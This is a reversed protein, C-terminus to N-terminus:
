SRRVMVTHHLEYDPLEGRALTVYSSKLFVDYRGQSKLMLRSVTSRRGDIVIMKPWVDNAWMLEVDVNPLRLGSDLEAARKKLEPSLDEVRNSPGDVYVFDWSRKHDIDYHVVPDGDRTTVVRDARVSTISGPFPTLYQQLMQHWHPSEEVTML